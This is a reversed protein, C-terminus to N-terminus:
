AAEGHGPARHTCDQCNGHGRSPLRYVSAEGPAVLRLWRSPASVVHLHRIGATM